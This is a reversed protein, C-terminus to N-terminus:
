SGLRGGGLAYDSRVLFHCRRMSGVRKAEKIHHCSPQKEVGPPKGRKGMGILPSLTRLRKAKPVGFDEKAIESRIKKTRGPNTKLSRGEGQHTPNRHRRM